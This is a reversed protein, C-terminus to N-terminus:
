HIIVKQSYNKENQHINVFYIGKAFNSVDVIQLKNIIKSFSCQNGQMDYIEYSAENLMDTVIYVQSAFSYVTVYLINSIPEIDVFQITDGAVIPYDPTTEYAYDKIVLIRGEDKVDCRIWGYHTNEDSDKFRVGLYHDLFEPYWYGGYNVFTGGIYLIDRYAMTQNAVIQFSM